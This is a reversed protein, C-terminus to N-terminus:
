VANRAQSFCLHLNGELAHGFLSADAYGHRRFLALLDVTMDALRCPPTSCSLDKVNTM